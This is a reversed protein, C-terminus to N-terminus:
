RRRAKALSVLIYGASVVFMIMTPIITTVDGTEIVSKYSNNFEFQKADLESTVKLSGNLDDEVVVTVTYVKDDYTVHKDTGKEEYLKYVYTGAETYTIKEFLIIGDATNTAYIKNGNADELVFKFEGAKMDRGALKKTAGIQIETSLAKYTNTFEVSEAIVADKTYTTVPTLTGKGDDTVTVTAVCTGKDYTIGKVDTDKEVIYYKYEGKVSIKVPDFIFNGKADNTAEDLENGEADKLVFVFEGKRLDRGKLTKTGKFTVSIPTPTYTNIFEAVEADKVKVTADLQGDHGEDTVSVVVTYKAKSYTVHTIGNDVESIEYEYTGVKDFIIEEFTVKGSADNKAKAVGETSPMPANDIPKLEFEFENDQLGRGELTKKADLVVHISAAKYSNTFEFTAPQGNVTYVPEEAKLKGGEDVVNVLVDIVRDDYDVGGLEEVKEQITYRYEGAKTYTISKFVIASYDEESENYSNQVTETKGESDTLVFSFEKNELDRGALTKIGSLTASTSKPIYTNKFLIATTYDENVVGDVTAKLAGTSDDEVTVTVTRVEDDDYTYGSKETTVVESVAYVYKGAEAYNIVSFQVLGTSQNSVIESYYRSDTTAVTEGNYSVIELKFQFEGDELNKHGGLLEKHAHISATTEEPDYENNFQIEENDGLVTGDKAVVLEAELKAEAPNDTVKVTITYVTDDYIIGGKEGDVEHVTYVYDGAKSFAVNDFLSIFGDEANEVFRGSETIVAVIPDPTPNGASPEIEFRFDGADMDYTNGSLKPTVIKEASVSVPETAEPVYENTVVFGTTNSTTGQTYMPYGDAISLVGTDPNYDVKVTAYWRNTDYTMGAISGEVERIVYVFEGAETFTINGFDVRASETDAVISNDAGKIEVVKSTPYEATTGEPVPANGTATLVFMFHDSGIFKRGTLVKAGSLAQTIPTPTYVNEFTMRNGAYRPEGVVLHGNTDDTVEVIVYAKTEDYSLKGDITSPKNESIEFRYTGVKTFQIDHGFAAAKTSVDDGVHSNAATITTTVSTAGAVAEKTDADIFKIEGDAIANITADDGGALTFTFSDNSNWNRGTLTKNINLHTAAILEDPEATYKNVFGIVNSSQETVDGDDYTKTIGPYDPDNEDRPIVLLVTNGEGDREVVKVSVTYKKTDYTLGPIDGKTETVVFEYLNNDTTAAKFTINGFSLTERNDSNMTITLREDTPMIVNGADIQAQTWEDEVTLKFQFTDSEKWDRGDITKVVQLNEWGYLITSEPVFQNNFTLAAEGEVTAGARTLTQVTATIKMTGDGNDEAVVTVTRLIGDYNVGPIRDALTDEYLEFVYTGAKKFTIDEFTGTETVGTTAADHGITLTVESPTGEKDGNMDINGADVEEAAVDIAKLVFTFKDNTEWASTGDENTYSKTIPLDLTGETHYDNTFTLDGDIYTRTAVLQGLDNDTVEFRVTIVHSDYTMGQITNVSSDEKIQIEYEGVKTFALAGFQIAGNAENKVEITDNKKFATTVGDKTLKVEAGDPCDTVKGEFTFQGAELTMGNLIKWLSLPTYTADQTTYKNNFEIEDLEIATSNYTAGKDVSKYVETKASLTGLGDDTVTVVVKYRTNEDYTIGGIKQADEPINEYIIYEYTGVADYTVNQLLLINGEKDNTNGRQSDGMPASGQADVIFFFEGEKLEKTDSNDDKTLIKKGSVVVPKNEFTAKYTNVFAAGTTNTTGEGNDYTVSTVVLKGTRENEVLEDEVVVTAIWEHTDYTLGQSTQGANVETIKFQYTGPKTFTVKGFDFTQDAKSVEDTIPLNVVTGEDNTFTVTTGVAAITDAGYAEITFSFKDSDLWERGSIAKTGQLPAYTGEGLTVSEPTYSNFFVARDYHKGDVMTPYETQVVIKGDANYSVHVKVTITSGDYSMGKLSYTGDGNNTAGEPIVETLNYIYTTTKGVEVHATTFEISDYAIQPGVNGEVLNKPLPTNVPSGKAVSIRFQFMDNQLPNTGSNDTYDKTGVPTWLVYKASFTNVIEATKSTVENNETIVLGADDRLKNMVVNKSLTGDGNDSITVIVQYMAGSYSIGAIGTAPVRESITYTYTGPKTYIIEDFTFEDSNKVTVEKLMHTANEQNPVYISGEPMPTTPRNSELIFTFEDTALWGGLRGNITKKVRFDTAIDDEDNVVVSSVSYNNKFKAEDTVGSAIDGSVVTGQTEANTEPNIVYAKFGAPVNTETVTYKSGEPLNIIKATEGDKLTITGGSTITGDSAIETGQADVVTYAYTDTLANNNADTLAVAFTFEKDPATLGEDATVMKSIELSGTVKVSLVGNNGLYIKYHGEAPDPNDAKHVFTPAYFEEATNAIATDAAKSGEFLLIKNLRPTGAERVLQGSANVNIETKKLQKGTRAVAKTVVEDNHYYVEKYYYITDDDLSNVTGTVPTEFKDDFYLPMDEQIYYFPNSHSPEFVVTADGATRVEETNTAKDLVTVQNTGTYLNSYFKVEGDESTNTAIYAKYAALKAEDNKMSEPEEVLHGDKVLGDQLGVTYSLRFPQENNHTHSTIVGDEDLTVTNVRLPILNAPIDVTLTQNGDADETLVISIGSLTTAKEDAGTVAQNFTWTVKGAVSTDVNTPTYTETNGATTPFTLTMNNYDKVEMYKGIPDTYTLHGSNDWTGGEKIETPVEPVSLALDSVIETFVSSVDGAADASHYRDVWTNIAAIDSSPHYLRDTSNNGSVTVNIYENNESTYNTWQTRINRAMNNNANWYAGPNLTINALNLADGSLETIGMGITHFSAAYDSNAEIGYHSNIQQRMYAGVMMAKMGNGYYYDNNRAGTSLTGDDPDPEWWNNTASSYSPAGDSLLVLAPIRQVPSKVDTASTLLSAGTYIGQQINTGGSVDITRTTIENARVTMEPYNWSSPEDESLTFYEYTNGWRDTTQTYRGLPLVVSASTSFVVVGVRTNENMAMIERISENVADVTYKMRTYTRNGNADPMGSSGNVMSGSIDIVFVVDLPAATKGTVSQGTALASYTVQLNQSDAITDVSKDTWIRGVFETSYPHGLFDESLYGNSTNVDADTTAAALVQATENPVLGVVMAVVLMAAVVAAGVKRIDFKGNKQRVKRDKNM